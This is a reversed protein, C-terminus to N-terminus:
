VSRLSSVHALLSLGLALGLLTLLLGGTGALVGEALGALTRGVHTLRRPGVSEALGALTGGLRSTGLLRVATLLLLLLLRLRTGLPRCLLRVLDSL